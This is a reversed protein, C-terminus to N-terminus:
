LNPLSPFGETCIRDPGYKLLSSIMMNGVQGYTDYLKYIAHGGKGLALAINAGLTVFPNRAIIGGATAYINPGIDGHGSVSLPYVNHMEWTGPCSQDDTCKVSATLSGSITGFVRIFKIYGWADFTPSTTETEGWHIDLDGDGFSPSNNIWEGTVKLGLPDIYKLPNGYVYGYTNIGGSLGIPDSTIYRGLSPDYYRWKNYHLNTEQDFYQGPLRKVEKLSLSIPKRRKTWLSLYPNRSSRWGNINKKYYIQHNLM